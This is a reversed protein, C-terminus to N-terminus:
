HAISGVQKLHVGSVVSLVALSLACQQGSAPDFVRMETKESWNSDYIPHFQLWQNLLSPAHDFWRAPLFHCFAAEDFRIASFGSLFRKAPVQRVIPIRHRWRFPEIVAARLVLIFGVRACRVAYGDRDFWDDRWGLMSILASALSMEDREVPTTTRNDLPM